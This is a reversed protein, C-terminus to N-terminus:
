PILDAHDVPIIEIVKGDDSRALWNEAEEKTEFPGFIGKIVDLRVIYMMDEALLGRQLRISVSPGISRSLM